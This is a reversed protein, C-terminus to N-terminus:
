FKEVGALEITTGARWVKLKSVTGAALAQRMAATNTIETGNIELLYDGAKVKMQEALAGAELSVIYVGGKVGATQIEAASLDRGSVGLHVAAGAVPKPKAANAISARLVKLGPMPNEFTINLDIPASSRQIKLILNGRPELDVLSGASVELNDSFRHGKVNLKRAGDLTSVAYIIDGQKLGAIAGPSDALVSDVVIGRDETWKARRLATATDEKEKLIVGMKPCIIINDPTKALALTTFADVLHKAVEKDDTGFYDVTFPSSQGTVISARWPYYLGSEDPAYELYADRYDAIVITNTHTESKEVAYPQSSGGMIPVYHSGVFAGSSFPTWSYGTEVWDRVYMMRVEDPSVQLDVIHMNRAASATYYTHLKTLTDIAAEVSPLVKPQYYVEKFHDPGWFGASAGAGSIVFAVAAALAALGHRM